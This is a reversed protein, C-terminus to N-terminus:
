RKRSQSSAHLSSELPPHKSAIIRPTEWYPRSGAHMEVQQTRNGVDAGQGGSRTRTAEPSTCATMAVAVFAIKLLSVRYAM